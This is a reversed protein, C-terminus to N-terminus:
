PLTRQNTIGGSYTEVTLDSSDDWLDVFTRAVDRCDKVDREERERERM